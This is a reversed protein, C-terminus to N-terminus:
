EGKEDPQPDPYHERECENGKCTKLWAEIRRQSKRKESMRDWNMLGPDAHDPIKAVFPSNCLHSNKLKRKDDKKVEGEKLIENVRRQLEIIANRNEIIEDLYDCQGKNGFLGLEGISQVKEPDEMEEAQEILSLFWVLPKIYDSLDIFPYLAKQNRNEREQLRQYFALREEVQNKLWELKNM